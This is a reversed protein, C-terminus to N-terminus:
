SRYLLNPLTIEFRHTRVRALGDNAGQVRFLVLPDTYLNGRATWEANPDQDVTRTSLTLILARINSPNTTSLTALEAPTQRKVFVPVQGMAATDEIAQVQFEVIYDLAPRVSGDREDNDDLDLQARVLMAREAGVRASDAAVNQLQAGEAVDDLNQVEYQVRSIPAIILGTGSSICSPIGTALTIQPDAPDAINIGAIERFITIGLDLSEIRLFDGPTFTDTFLDTDFDATDFDGDADCAAPPTYFCRRFAERRHQLAITTNGPLIRDSLFREACDSYNGVMRLRDARTNNETSNVLADGTNAAIEIAQIDVGPPMNAGSCGTLQRSDRTSMYGARAVDRRLQEIAMRTSMQAESVRLQEGFYRSSTGSIFYAGGIALTGATLALMLEVLTYGAQRNHTRRRSM